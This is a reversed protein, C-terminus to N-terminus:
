QLGEEQRLEEARSQYSRALGELRALEQKLADGAAALRDLWEEAVAADERVSELRQQLQLDGGLQVDALDELVELRATTAGHRASWISHTSDHRAAVARLDDLRDAIIEEKELIDAPGDLPELAIARDIPPWQRWVLLPDVVQVEASDAEAIPQQAAWVWGAGGWWFLLAFGVARARVQRVRRRSCDSM